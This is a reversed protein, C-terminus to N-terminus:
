RGLKARSLQDIGDVKTETRTLRDRDAQAQRDQVDLRGDLASLHREIGQLQDLRPGQDIKGELSAVHTTLSGIEDRLQAIDRSNLPGASLWAVLAAVIGVVVGIAAVASFFTNVRPNDLATKAEDVMRAVGRKRGWILPGIVINSSTAQQM